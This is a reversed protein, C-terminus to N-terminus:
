PRPLSLVFCRIQCKRGCYNDLQQPAPASEPSPPLLPPSSIHFLRAAPRVKEDVVISQNNLDLPSDLPDPSSTLYLSAAAAAGALTLAGAGIVSSNQQLFRQIRTMADDAM